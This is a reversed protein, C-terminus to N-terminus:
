FRGRVRNKALGVISPEWIRARHEGSRGCIVDELIIKFSKELAREPALSFLVRLSGIQGRPPWCVGGNAPKVRDQPM